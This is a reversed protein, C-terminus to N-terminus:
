QFDIEMLKNNKGRLARLDRLFKQNEELAEHEEHYFDEITINEGHGGHSRPAKDISTHPFKARGVTAAKNHYKIPPPTCAANPKPM